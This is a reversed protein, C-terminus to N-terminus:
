RLLDLDIDPILPGTPGCVDAFSLLPVLGADSEHFVVEWPGDERGLLVWMEQPGLTARVVSCTETYEKVWTIHATYGLPFEAQVYADLPAQLEAGHQWTLFPPRYALWLTLACASAALLLLALVAAAGALPHKRLANM